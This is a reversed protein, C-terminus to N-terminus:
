HGVPLGNEYRVKRQVNGNKDYFIWEGSPISRISGSKDKELIYDSISSVKSDPFYSTCKGSPEGNTLTQEQMLVGTEYYFSWKGDPKDDEYNGEQVKIGKPQL